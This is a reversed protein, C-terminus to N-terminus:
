HGFNNFSKRNGRGNWARHVTRAKLEACAAPRPAGYPQSHKSLHQLNLVRFDQASTWNFDSWRQFTLNTIRFPPPPPPSSCWFKLANLTVPCPGNYLLCKVRFVLTLFWDTYLFLFMVFVFGNGTRLVVCTAGLSWYVDVMSCPIMGSYSGWFSTFYVKWIKTRFNKVTIHLTILFDRHVQHDCYLFVCFYKLCNWDSVM